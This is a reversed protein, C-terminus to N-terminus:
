FPPPRLLMRDVGKGELGLRPPVLPGAQPLSVGFYEFFPAAAVLEALGRKM